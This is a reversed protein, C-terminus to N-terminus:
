KIRYLAFSGPSIVQGVLDGRGRYQEGNPLRVWRDGNENDLVYNDTVLLEVKDSRTLIALFRDCKAALTQEPTKDVSATGLDYLVYGFGNEKLIDFFEEDRETQRTIEDFRDLVVDNLFRRDNEKIHYRFYTNVGYIKESLDSNLHDIAPDFFPNFSNLAGSKGTSPDTAFDVFQWTFVQDRVGLTIPNTVYVLTNLVLFLGVMASLFYRSFGTSASGLFNEPQALAKIILIPVLAWFVFGYWVIGNGLLWWSFIYVWLFLALIRYSGEGSRWRHNFLAFCLVIVLFLLALVVGLSWQSGAILLGSFLGAISLFVSVGSQYVSWFISPAEVSRSAYLAQRESIVTAVDAVGGDIAHMAYYNSAVWLLLLIILLSNFLASYKQEPKNLLLLPLLMLLLFGIDLYRGFPINVNTTLDYPISTYLWLGQEYGLYRVVEEYVATNEVPIEEEKPSEELNLETEVSPVEEPDAIGLSDRERAAVIEAARARAREAIMAAREEDTYTQATETGWSLSPGAENASTIASFGSAGQSVNRVGWPAYAIAATLLMLAVLGVPRLVAPLDRRFHVLLVVIGAIALFSGLWLAESSSLPLYALRYVGSLLVSSMALLFYGLAGLLKGNRYFPIVGLGLLLFLGTYKIGFAYGAVLGVLIWVPAYNGLKSLGSRVMWNPKKKKIGEPFVLLLAAIGFFLFALDTKEDAMAHFGFYQSLLPVAAALLAFPASLWKRAVLFVGWFAFVGMLHSLLISIPVQGFLIEGLSMVVGWNFAHGYDPLGGYQSILHPQNLYLSAGDYGIPYPKIAAILQISFIFLILGLLLIPWQQKEKFERSQFFLIKAFSVNAKWGWAFCALVVPWVVVPILLSFFALILLLIGILSFGIAIALYSHSEAYRLPFQQVVRDGVGHATLTLFFLALLYLLTTFSFYGLRLGMAVGELRDQSLIYDHLVVLCIGFFLGFIAIGRYKFRYDPHKLRRRRFALGIGGLALIGALKVLMSLHPTNVVAQWHDPHFAMYELLVWLAWILCIGQVLYIHIKKGLNAM